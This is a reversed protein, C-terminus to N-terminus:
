GFPAFLWQVFHALCGEAMQVRSELQERIKVM